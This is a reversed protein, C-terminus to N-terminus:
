SDYRFVYEASQGPPAVTRLVDQLITHAMFGPVFITPSIKFRSLNFTQNPTQNPTRM